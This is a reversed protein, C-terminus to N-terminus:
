VATAVVVPSPRDDPEDVVSIFASQFAKPTFVKFGQFETKVVRDGVFAQTQRINMPRMVDVKIFNSAPEKTNRAPATQITGGCWRSVEAMNDETVADAVEVFAPRYMFKQTKV